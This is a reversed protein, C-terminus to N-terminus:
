TKQENTDDSLSIKKEVRLLPIEVTVFQLLQEGSAIVRIGFVELPSVVHHDVTPISLISVICLISVIRLIGGRQYGIM